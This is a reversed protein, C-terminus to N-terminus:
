PIVPLLSINLLSLGVGIQGNTSVAMCVGYNSRGFPVRLLGVATVLPDILGQEAGAGRAIATPLSVVGQVGLLADLVPVRRHHALGVGLVPDVLSLTIGTLNANTPGWQDTWDISIHQGPFVAFDVFAQTLGDGRARRELEESLTYMRETRANEALWPDINQAFLVRGSDLAVIRVSVGSATEEIWIASRSPPAEGRVQDDLRRVEDLGVAGTQYVLAGDQVIARPAMCAECLRLTGAGFAAEISTIAQTSFWTESEAYRPTAAVLVAPLVAEPDVLGDEVRLELVEGLRDM